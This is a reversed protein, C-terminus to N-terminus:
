RKQSVLKIKILPLFLSKKNDFSSEWPPFLSSNVQPAWLLGSALIRHNKEVVLLLEPVNSVIKFLTVLSTLSASWSNKKTVDVSIKVSVLCPNNFHSALLLRPAHCFVSGILLNILFKRRCNEYSGFGLKWYRNRKQNTKM